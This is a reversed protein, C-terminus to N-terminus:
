LGFLDVLLRASAGFLVWGVFILVLVVWIRDWISGKPPM